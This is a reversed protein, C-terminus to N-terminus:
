SALPLTVWFVTGGGEAPEFGITGGHVEVLARAISLGLGSGGRRGDPAPAQQFRGFIRDAFGEPIGPGHDRVSVRAERGSTAIALDVATGAPTFRVANSVLNTFVQILRDSDGDVVATADSDVRLVVGAERALGEIGAATQRLVLGLDV